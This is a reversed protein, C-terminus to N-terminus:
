FKPRISRDDLVKFAHKTHGGLYPVLSWELGSHTEYRVLGDGDPDPNATVGTEM